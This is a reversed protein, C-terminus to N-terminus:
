HLSVLVARKAGLMMVGETRSPNLELLTKTPRTGTKFGALSLSWEFM